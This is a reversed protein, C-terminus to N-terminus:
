ERGKKRERNRRARKEGNMQGGERGRKWGKERGGEGGGRGGGGELRTLSYVLSHPGRGSLALPWGNCSTRELAGLRWNTPLLGELM